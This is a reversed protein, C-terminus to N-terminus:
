SYWPLKNKCRCCSQRLLQRSWKKWAPGGPPLLLIRKEEEHEPYGLSIRMMFRDLQAEPLPFTGEYEIPNQTALVIFPVPLHHTVGDVTVQGEAMAELLSSQNRPSTRNIEDALVVQSMIPGPKYIFKESNRDYVSIGIIDAPMLDPTFQIRSFTCGLTKAFTKALTTKGVGPVDEILLHGGCLIATLIKAAQQEKGIIVQGVGALIQTAKEMM